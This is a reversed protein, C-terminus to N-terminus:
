AGDQSRTTREVLQVDLDHALDKIARALPSQGIHLQEAARAFHVEEALSLFCRLHRLERM